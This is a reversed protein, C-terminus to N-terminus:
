CIETVYTRYKAFSSDLSLKAADAEERCEFLGFCASGSGSVNSHFCGELSALSEIVKKVQPHFHLIPELLSNEKGQILGKFSEVTKFDWDQAPIPSRFSTVSRKYIDLTSINFDPKIVLAYLKPLSCFSVIEDGIGAGVCARQQMCPLIDAGFKCVSMLDSEKIYNYELLFKLLAGADCSGGGLGAGIPIKKTLKVNFKLGLFDLIKYLLNDEQKIAYGEPFDSKIVEVSLEDSTQIDIEDCLYSSCTVEDTIKFSLRLQGRLAVTFFNTM